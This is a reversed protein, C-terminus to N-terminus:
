VPKADRKEERPKILRAIQGCGIRSQLGKKAPQEPRIPMACNRM